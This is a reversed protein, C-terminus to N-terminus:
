DFAPPLAKLDLVGHGFRVVTTRFVLVVAPSGPAEM